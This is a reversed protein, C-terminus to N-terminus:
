FHRDSYFFETEDVTEVAHVDALCSVVYFEVFFSVEVLNKQSM